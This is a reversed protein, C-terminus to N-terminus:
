LTTGPAWFAPSASEFADAGPPNQESVAAAGTYTFDGFVPTGAEPAFGGGCSLTVLAFAASTALLLIRKM